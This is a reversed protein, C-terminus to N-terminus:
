KTIVKAQLLAYRVVDSETVKSSKAFNAVQQKEKETVRARVVDTRKVIVM